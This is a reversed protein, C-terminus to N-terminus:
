ADRLDGAFLPDHAGRRRERERQEEDRDAEREAPVMQLPMVAFREPRGRGEGANLRVDRLNGVVRVLRPARILHALRVGEVLQLLQREGCDGRGRRGMEEDPGLGHDTLPNELVRWQSLRHFFDVFGVVAVEQEARLIDFIRLCGLLAGAEVVGGKEERGVAVLELLVALGSEDQETLEQGEAVREGDQSLPGADTDIERRPRSRDDEGHLLRWPSDRRENAVLIRNGFHCVFCDRQTGIEEDGDGVVGPVPAPVRLPAYALVEAVGNKAANLM